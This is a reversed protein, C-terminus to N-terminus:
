PKLVKGVIVDNGSTIRYIISNARGTIDQGVPISYTLGKYAKDNYLVKLLRGSLDYLSLNVHDDAKNLSFEITLHDVYPNPYATATINVGGTPDIHAVKLLSPVANAYGVLFSCGDFGVNIKDLMATVDAPTVATNAGGLVDNALKFLGAATPLYGHSGNLYTYVAGSLDIYSTSGVLIATSGCAVPKAVVLVKSALSITGLNPNLNMNFFYTILQGLLVNNIKGTNTKATSIPVNGWTSTTVFTASGKLAVPTGGGPLMKFIDGSTIDRLTLTFLKSGAGFAFSGVNDGLTGNQSDMIKTMMAQALSSGGNPLCALGNVNGYFGMTYTCVKEKICPKLEVSCTTTCGHADTISVGITANSMSGTFFSITAVDGPNTISGTTNNLQWDSSNGIFYALYTYPGTGGSVKLNLTNKDSNGCDPQTMSSAYPWSLDCTLKVPEKITVQKTESCVDGANGGAASAVITYTGPGYKKAADYAVGDVTITAGVSASAWITGDALGFCSVNTSSADLTVKAPENVTVQKTESCVDGENGGAASAVITYTGPGYKKAADYAVGDVTITAGVSANATITGDALGFCSVNTSSADLTVKAPENVTVQKTETCVDGENGGAASAVVTYTGPGYKKAADYAVGDVTITAGVSANATITGDALGFCSVNTSSADLTVKAPEKITVQKTESCVGGENGGAASAVVTYTGPGYKKAADYALGDVTITAGVSANATITGDALGFCSVNTSSADLTV